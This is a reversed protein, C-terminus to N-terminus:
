FICPAQNDARAAQASHASAILRRSCTCRAPQGHRGSGGQACTHLDHNHKCRFSWAAGAGHSHRHGIAAPAHRFQPAPHPGVGAQTHGGSGCGTEACAAFARPFPPASTGRWQAPRDFDVDKVRLRVGEMLRMGTGYLLRALLAEGGHMSALVGAVESKTLVSPIRRPSSPRKVGNLWPLECQLVERYLFLLASLAQNHTSSSVKRETALM